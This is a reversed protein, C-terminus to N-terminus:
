ENSLTKSIDMKLAKHAPLFAALIGISLTVALVIIENFLLGANEFSYHFNSELQNSLLYLGLRSLALGVLSGTSVVMLGEAQILWFMKVRSAGLSRMLAIEYKRKKLANFLSIFVSVFSLLMIAAAVAKLVDIGMGFGQSLRNIEIAPLAIQMNTKKILNPLIMQAMPSRKKILFATVEKNDDPTAVQAHAPRLMMMPGAMNGPSPDSIDAVQSSSDMQADSSEDHDEHAHWITSLPTLILKDIVSGNANFVGVVTYQHNHLHENDATEQDLGHTSTFQDGLKLGTKIAVEAGIVADYETSFNTGQAFSMQYHKAYNSDTGVIRWNQFNDGYALPIAMEVVPSQTVIKADKMKINGTPADVHYVNALILQLPSGKAGLVMDIDKINKDFQDTAQKEVLLLLSIVGIGFALLVASLLSDTWQHTVNKYALKIVNM